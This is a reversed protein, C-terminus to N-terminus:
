VGSWNADKPELIKKPWTDTKLASKLGKLNREFEENSLTLQLRGIVWTEYNYGHLPNHIPSDPTAWHGCKDPHLWVGNKSDNIRIGVDFM